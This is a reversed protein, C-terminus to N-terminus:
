RLYYAEKNSLTGHLAQYRDVLSNYEKKSHAVTYGNGWSFIYLNLEKMKENLKAPDLPDKPFHEILYCFQVLWELYIDKFKTLGIRSLLDFTAYDNNLYIDHFDQAREPVFSNEIIQYPLPTFLKTDKILNM